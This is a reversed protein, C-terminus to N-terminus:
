RQNVNIKSKDLSYEESLIKKIEEVEKKSIEQKEEKRGINIKEIENISNSSSKNEKDDKQVEIDISKIQMNNEDNNYIYISLSTTKYGKLALKNKIDDKITKEFTNQIIEKSDLNSNVEIANEQKFYKKLIEGSFQNDSLNIFKSVIPNVLVFLVYLNIIMKIYKKNKGNPLILEFIVAIIIAVIVQNVWGKLWGLM